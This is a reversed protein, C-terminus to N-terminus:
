NMQWKYWNLGSLFHKKEEAELVCILFWLIEQRPRKTIIALFPSACVVAKKRVSNKKDVRKLDTDSFDHIGYDRNLNEIQFDIERAFWFWKNSRNEASRGIQRSVLRWRNQLIKEDIKMVNVLKFHVFGTEHFSITWDSEDDNSEINPSM